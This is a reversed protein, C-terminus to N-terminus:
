FLVLTMAPIQSVISRRYASLKPIFKERYFHSRRAACPTIRLSAKENRTQLSNMLAPRRLRTRRQIGRGVPRAESLKQLDRRKLNFFKDFSDGSGPEFTKSRGDRISDM